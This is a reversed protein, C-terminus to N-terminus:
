SAGTNPSLIIDKTHCIALYDGVLWSLLTTENPLVTLKM